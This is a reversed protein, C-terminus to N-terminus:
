NFEKWALKELSRAISVLALSMVVNPSEDDLVAQEAAEFVESYEMMKREMTPVDVRYLDCLLLGEFFNVNRLGAEINHVTSQYWDFGHANIKEVVQNQTLGAEKRLAKWDFM